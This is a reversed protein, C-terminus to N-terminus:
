KLYHKDLEKMAMKKGDATRKVLYVQAYSGEGIQKIQEFDTPKAVKKKKDRKM